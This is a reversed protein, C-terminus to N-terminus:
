GNGISDRDWSSNIADNSTISMGFSTESAGTVNDEPASSISVSSADSRKIASGSSREPSQRANPDVQRLVGSGFMEGSTFTGWDDGPTPESPREAIAAKRPALKFAKFNEVSTPDVTKYESSHRLDRWMMGEGPQRGAFNLSELARTFPTMAEVGGDPTSLALEDQTTHISAHPKLLSDEKRVKAQAPGPEEDVVTSPRASPKTLLSTDDPHTTCEPSTGNKPHLLMSENEKLEKEGHIRLLKQILANNQKIQNEQRAIQDYQEEVLTKWSTIERQIRSERLSQQGDWRAGDCIGGM